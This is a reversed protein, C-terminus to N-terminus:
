KPCCPFGVTVQPHSPSTISTSLHPERSWFSCFPPSAQSSCSNAMSLAPSPVLSHAAAPPVAPPEAGARFTRGALFGCTGGRPGDTPGPPHMGSKYLLFDSYVSFAGEVPGNKYIEAMIEKESSSVSYSSCGAFLGASHPPHRRCPALWRGIRPSAAPPVKGHAHM